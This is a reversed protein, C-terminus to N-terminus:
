CDRRKTGEVDDFWWFRWCVDGPFAYDSSVKEDTLTYCSNVKKDLYSIYILKQEVKKPSLRGRRALYPALIIIRITRKERLATTHAAFTASYTIAPFGRDINAAMMVAAAASSPRTM